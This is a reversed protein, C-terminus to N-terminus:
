LDCAAVSKEYGDFFAQTCFYLAHQMSMYWRKIVERFEHVHLLDEIFDKAQIRRRIEEGAFCDHIVDQIAIGDGGIRQDEDRGIHPVAIWFEPGVGFAKVRLSKGWLLNGATRAMHIIWEAFTRM